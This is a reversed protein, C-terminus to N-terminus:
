DQLRKPQSNHTHTHTYVSVNPRAQSPLTTPDGQSIKRGRLQVVSSSSLSTCLGQESALQGLIETM